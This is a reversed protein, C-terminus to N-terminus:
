CLGWSFSPQPRARSSPHRSLWMQPKAYLRVSIEWLKGSPGEAASQICASKNIRGSHNRVSLRESKGKLGDQVRTELFESTGAQASCHGPARRHTGWSSCDLERCEWEVQTRSFMGASKLVEPSRSGSEKAFILGTSSLGGSVAPHGASCGAGLQRRCDGDESAVRLKFSLQDSSKHMICFTVNIIDVRTFFLM